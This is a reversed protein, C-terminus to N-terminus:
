ALLSVFFILGSLVVALLLYFAAPHERLDEVFDELFSKHDVKIDGDDDDSTMEGPMFDYPQQAKDRFEQPQTPKARNQIFEQERPTLNMYKIEHRKLGASRLREGNEFVWPRISAESLNTLGKPLGGGIAAASSGIAGGGTKGIGDQLKHVKKM